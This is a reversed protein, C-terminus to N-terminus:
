AFTFIIYHTVASGNVRPVRWYHVYRVAASIHLLVDIVGLGRVGRPYMQVGELSKYGVYM